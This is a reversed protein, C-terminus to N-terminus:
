LGNRFTAAMLNTMKREKQCVKRILRRVEEVSPTRCGVSEIAYGSRFTPIGASSIHMSIVIKAKRCRKAKGHCGYPFFELTDEYGRADEPM